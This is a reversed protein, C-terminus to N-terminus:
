HGRAVKLTCEHCGYVDQPPFAWCFRCTHVGMSEDAVGMPTFPGKTPITQPKCSKVHNEIAKDLGPWWIYSRAIAEM